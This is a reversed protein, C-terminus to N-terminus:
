ISKRNDEVFAKTSEQLYSFPTFALKPPTPEDEQEKLQVESPIQPSVPLVGASGSESKSRFTDIETQSRQSVAQEGTSESSESSEPSESSVSLPVSKASDLDAIVE